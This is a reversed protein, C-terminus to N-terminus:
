GLMFLICGTSRRKGKVNIAPPLLSPKKARQSGRHRYVPKEAERAMGISKLNREQASGGRQQNDPSDAWGHRRRMCSMEVYTLGRAEIAHTAGSERCIDVRGGFSWM